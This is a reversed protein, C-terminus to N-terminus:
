LRFSLEDVWNSIREGVAYGVTIGFVTWFAVFAYSGYQFSPHNSWDMSISWGLWAGVLTILIHIIENMMRMEQSSIHLRVQPVIEESAWVSGQTDCSLCRKRM